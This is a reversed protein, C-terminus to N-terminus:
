LTFFQEEGDWFIVIGQPNPLNQLYSIARFVLAQKRKEELDKKVVIKDPLLVMLLRGELPYERIIIETEEM